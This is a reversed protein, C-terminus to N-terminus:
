TWVGRVAGGRVTAGGGGGGWGWGAGGGSGWSAQGLGTWCGGRKVQTRSGGALSERLWGETEGEDLSVEGDGHARGNGGKGGARVPLAKGRGGERRGRGNVGGLGSRGLEGARGGKVLLEAWDKFFGVTSAEALGEAEGGGRQQRVLEALDGEVLVAARGVGDWGLHARDV